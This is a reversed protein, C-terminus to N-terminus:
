CVFGHVQQLADTLPCELFGYKEPIATYSLDDLVSL